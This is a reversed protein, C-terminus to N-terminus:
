FFSQLGNKRFNEGYSKSNLRKREISLPLYLHDLIPHDDRLVFAKQDQYTNKPIVKESLDDIRMGGKGQFAVAELELPKFYALIINSRKNEPLRTDSIVTAQLNAAEITKIISRTALGLEGSIYGSFNILLVAEENMLKQVDEFAELSLLHEPPTEGLYTDWVILDYKQDSTKIYHRGDDIIKTYNEHLEFYEHAVQCIREDIEVVDTQFGARNLQKVHTGAGLGLVLAKSGEPFLSMLAAFHSAFSWSSFEPNASDMESQLFNNVLLHRSKYPPINIDVVKIQGMIGESIHRISFQSSDLKKADLLVSPLICLLFILSYFQRKRVLTILPFIALIFGYIMIPKSLGLSPIVWFGVSFAAIIGGFTSVAYITGASQGVEDLHTTLHHIILPSVMGLLCLPPFLFFLLSLSVGLQLTMSMTRLMTWEALFPMLVMFAAAAVLALYLITESNKRRTALGGLFYGCMLGALTIGLVAAWVVLSTGFFPAVLKASVLECTMVAGGEILALFYLYLKAKNNM